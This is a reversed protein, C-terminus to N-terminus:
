WRIAGCLMVGHEVPVGAGNDNAARGALTERSLLADMGGSLSASWSRTLSMSLGRDTPPRPDWGFSVSAGWERLGSAEHAVLARGRLDHNLGNAPDAFALWGGMDAGLGTEADGGDLRVGIEFSPTISASYKGDDLALARSGEIGTRLMWVDAEAATLRGGDANRASDSETRNFCGDGKLALSFGDGDAPRLVRSGLGAPPCGRQRTVSVRSGSLPIRFLLTPM